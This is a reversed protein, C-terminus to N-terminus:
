GMQINRIVNDWHLGITICLALIVLLIGIKFYRRKAKIVREYRKELKDFSYKSPDKVEQMSYAIFSTLFSLGAVILILLAIVM